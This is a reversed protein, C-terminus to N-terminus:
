ENSLIGVGGFTGIVSAVTCCLGLKANPVQRAGGEGRLQRVAEVWTNYGAPTFAHSLLGGHTNLPLEGGPDIRGGEVFAGGEGKECFGFDEIQVIPNITFNDYLEVFDIDARSVEAENFAFDAANKGVTRVMNFGTKPDGRALAGMFYASQAYGMGLIYVPKRRLNRANEASTVVLAAAGDSNICCDLLHFPSSIMRSNVVDEVTIPTRMIADPNLCAHKRCAVAVAALQESTTGYEHMHRQALAAYFTIMLPGFPHEYTRSHTPSVSLSNTFGHGVSTRGLQGTTNGGSVILVNRSAGSAIAWRAIALSFGSTGGGMPVSICISKTYIGLVESLEIHGRPHEGGGESAVVGDIDDKTLGADEIAKLAAEVRLQTPTKDPIARAFQTTGVGAIAVKKRLEFM